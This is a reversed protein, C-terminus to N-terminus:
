RVPHEICHSGAVPLNGVCVTADDPRKERTGVGIGLGSKPDRVDVRRHEDSWPVEVTWGPERPRRAITEPDATVTAIQARSTGGVPLTGEVAMVDTVGVVQVAANSASVHDPTRTTSAFAGAGFIVTVGLAAAFAPAHATDYQVRLRTLVMAGPLGRLRGRLRERARQLRKRDRDDQATLRLADTIVRRDTESLQRFSTMAEELHLRHEAAEGMDAVADDPVDGYELREQSRILDRALRRAVVWSWRYLARASKFEVRSALARAFVEQVVDAAEDSSLGRKTLASLLTQSVKSLWAALDAAAAGVVRTGQLDYHLQTAPAHEQDPEDGEGDRSDATGRDM